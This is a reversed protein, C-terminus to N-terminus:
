SNQPSAGVRSAKFTGSVDKLKAIFSFDKADPVGSHALLLNGKFDPSPLSRFSPRNFSSLLKRSSGALSITEQGTTIQPNTKMWIHPALVGGYRAQEGNRFEQQIADMIVGPLGLMMNQMEQRLENAEGCFEHCISELDM